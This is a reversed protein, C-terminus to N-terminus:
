LAGTKTRAMVLRRTPPAGAPAMSGTGAATYPGGGAAPPISVAVITEYNTGTGNVSTASADPADCQSLRQDIGGPTYTKKSTWGTPAAPSTGEQGNFLLVLSTAASDITFTAVSTDSRQSDVDTWATTNGDKVFAVICAQMNTGPAADWSVDLSQAGTSPNYWVAVGCGAGGGTGAVESTQNPNQSNLTASLLGYGSTASYYSWFMYVATADAPITVDQPAPNQDTNWVVSVPTGTLVAAM